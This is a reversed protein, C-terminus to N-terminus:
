LQMEALARRLPADSIQVPGHFPIDMDLVLYVSAAILLSSVTFMSIVMPNRPARYGFSAYILTMWAVLMGILPGPIAGESQEVIKWRQEILAHYQQRIDVLLTEHYRDAPKIAALAAGIDDLYQAALSKQHLLAQDGRYPNEVAQGVYVVLHDRTNQAAPGYTRLSRDLIILSTAYAHMNSDIAEFTNKASNIMLGFVLSTMVVFINAVLRVVMNTDEDRHRPSLKPYLHMMVLSATLLCLFTGAAIWMSDM